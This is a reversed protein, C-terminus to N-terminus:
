PPSIVVAQPFDPPAGTITGASCYAGRGTMDTCTIPVIMLYDTGPFNVDNNKFKMQFYFVQTGGSPSAAQGLIKGFNDLKKQLEGQYDEAKAASSIILSASVLGFLLRNRM